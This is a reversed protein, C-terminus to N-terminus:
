AAKPEPVPSGDRKMAAELAAIREDREKLAARLADIEQHAKFLAGLIQALTADM